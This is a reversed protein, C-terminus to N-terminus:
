LAMLAAVVGVVVAAVASDRPAGLLNAAASSSSDSSSTVRATSVSARGSASGAVGNLQDVTDIAPGVNFFDVLVAWPAKAYTTSCEAAAEGLSNTGNAANTVDLYTTNPQEIGLASSSYLFHNMLFLRDGSAASATDGKLSTPRDPTCTYNSPNTNDYPNEFLFNFEDLLYPAVTNSSADLSAVFTVLRTNNAIMTELTPWESPATTTSEPTYAYDDIGSTSFESELDSASADDSNVLLLTVVDNTNADMWTKIESLWDSLKGADLLACSSHCLHWESAGNDTYSHVQATLLRVGANLQVTSNYYQNGSSSYSTTSDSLFPSDHAGLLTVNGYSKSCLSAANNCATTSTTNQANALLSLLPLVAAAQAINRFVMTM